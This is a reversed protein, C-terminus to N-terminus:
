RSEASALTRFVDETSPLPVSGILHVLGDTARIM